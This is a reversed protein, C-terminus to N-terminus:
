LKAAPARTNRTKATKKWIERKRKLIKTEMQEVAKVTACSVNVPSTNTHAENKKSRALISASYIKIVIENITRKEITLGIWHTERKTSKITQRNTTAVKPSAM